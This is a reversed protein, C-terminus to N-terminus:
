ERVEVLSISGWTGAAPTNLAMMAIDTDFRVHLDFKGSWAVTAGNAPAVSFTLVGTTYNLSWGSVLEVGAVYVKVSGVEPKTIERILTAATDSYKIALQFVTKAGTGADFIHGGATHTLTSGVWSMGIYYDSWDRFRFSFAMGGRLMFFDKLAKRTAYDKALHAVEFRHRPTDWNKNRQEFSSSSTVITTNFEPGMSAGLEYFEPFRVDHFAM